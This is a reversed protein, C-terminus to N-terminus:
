DLDCGLATEQKKTLIKRLDEPIKNHTKVDKLKAVQFIAGCSKCRYFGHNKRSKMITLSECNSCVKRVRLEETIM